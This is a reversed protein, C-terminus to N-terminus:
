VAGFRLEDVRPGGLGELGSVSAWALVPSVAEHM